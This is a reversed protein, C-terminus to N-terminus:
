EIGTLSSSPILVDIEKHPLIHYIYLLTIFDRRLVTQSYILDGNIFQHLPSQPLSTRIRM